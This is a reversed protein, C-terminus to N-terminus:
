ILGNTIYISLLDMIENYDTLGLAIVPRMPTKPNSKGTQATALKDLLEGTPPNDPFELQLGGGSASISGDDSTIFNKLDGTRVNIPHAPSFGKASRILETIPSLPTWTGVADDGEAAFRSSARDQLHQVLDGRMWTALETNDLRSELLTLKTDLDKKNIELEISWGPSTM